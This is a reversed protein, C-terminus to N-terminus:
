IKDPLLKFVGLHIVVTTLNERGDKMYNILFNFILKPSERMLIEIYNFILAFPKEGMIM